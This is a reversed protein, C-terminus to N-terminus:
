WGLGELEEPLIWVKSGKDKNCKEHAPRLNSIDNTGGKVIPVIHDITDAGKMGCLYCIRGYRSWVAKRMAPSLEDRLDKRRQISRQKRETKRRKKEYARVAKISSQRTRGSSMKEMEYM